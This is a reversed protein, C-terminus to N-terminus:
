AKQMTKSLILMKSNLSLQSSFAVVTKNLISDLNKCSQVPVLNKIDAGGFTDNIQGDLDKRDVVVLVTPNKLKMDARLMQAAYLMLLSKGSGQFHWILGKKPYGAKVRDVIQSAAEFQPYRPLIKIKTPALNQGIKVSSYLTFSQLLKLLTDPNLLGAASELVSAMGPLIEDRQETKYWPGWDKLRANIAGYAFTKGESAFCLLNPVFLLLM